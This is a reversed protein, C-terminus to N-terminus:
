KGVTPVGRRVGDPSTLTLFLNVCHCVLHYKLQPIIGSLSRKM